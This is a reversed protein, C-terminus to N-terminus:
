KEPFVYPTNKPYTLPLEQLEPTAKVYGDIDNALRQMNRWMDQMEERAMILQYSERHSKSFYALMMENCLTFLKSLKEKIHTLLPATDLTERLCCRWIEYSGVTLDEYEEGNRPLHKTFPTVYSRFFYRLFALDDDRTTM